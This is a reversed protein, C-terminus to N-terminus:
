QLLNDDKPSSAGWIAKPLPLKAIRALHSSFSRM